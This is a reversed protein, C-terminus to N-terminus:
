PRAAGVYEDWYIPVVEVYAGTHPSHIMQGGGVYMGVHSIPSYFFVLDGPVLESRDVHPLYAYQSASSHPLSVGAHAWAWMTFGSCDFGTEPSAGAYVYPTGIVSYAAALAAQAGSSPAPPPPAAGTRPPAPSSYSPAAEPSQQTYVPRSLAKELRDILDRQETIASEIEAQKNSLITVVNERAQVATELREGAWRARQGAVQAASVVDADSGAIQNLYELRDSFEAMSNSGLLIELQTGVGGQYAFAARASLEASTKRAKARAAKAQARAQALEKRAQDLAIRAQNYEEVLGDLRQNLSSLRSKASDLDQQSPRAQSVGGLGVLATVTILVALPLRAYKAAARAHAQRM